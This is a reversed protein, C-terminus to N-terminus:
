RLSVEIIEREEATIGYLDYVLDDIQADTDHLAAELQSLHLAESPCKRRFEDMLQKIRKINLGAGAVALVPVQLAELVGRLIKGRVWIKKRRKEELFARLSFFLFLRFDEDAINLRAIDRWKDDVRGAIRLSQTDPNEDVRIGTVEDKENADILSQCQIHIGRYESHNYYAKWLSVYEREYGKLTETFARGAKGKARNLDLMLDVLKVLGQQRNRSARKIPLRGMTVGTIFISTNYTSYYFNMLKSNLLALLYKLDFRDDTPNLIYVSELPYLNEEDYTLVLRRKLTQNRIHQVLLKPELFKDEYRARPSSSPFKIMEEVDYLLTKTSSVAYRGVDGGSVCRRCLERKVRPLKAFSDASLVFREKSGTKVGQKATVLKGLPETDQELKSVLVLANKDLRINFQAGPLKTFLVQTIERVKGVLGFAPGVGVPPVIDDLVLVTCRQRTAADGEKELLLIMVSIVAETFVTEILNVVNRVACHDLILERLEEFQELSLLSNPIIYGMRGKERSLHVAREVFLAYSDVLRKGARFVDRFARKESSSFPVGYPPNGVIVTFGRGIDPQRADFVEPFEVEWNFPRQDEVDDGFYKKLSRSLAENVPKAIAEIEALRKNREEDGRLQTLEKRREILQVIAEQHPALDEPGRVGSVLSNGVKLNQRLILPLKRQESTPGNKLRDFARMILNVGAIEVAERDLDVGYLHEQLIKEIYNPETAQLTPTEDDKGFMGKQLQAKGWRDWIAANEEEIRKNEGEYFDALVDFAYILFSGSGMAPDLVRRDSIDALTKRTAGQEPEGEAKGDVTGYLYKGLTNDVIYRVIYTPTYYIGKGKRLERRAELEIKDGVLKLKHGLYSEYTNGLIDSTFKRFSINTLDGLLAEMTKNSILVEECTHPSAFIATDHERYFARYFSNVDQQLDYEVAYPGQAQYSTLIRELQDHQLLAGVDDAYRIIILRDLTRQVAQGLLDLKEEAAPQFLPEDRRRDEDYMDQALRKRWELLFDYFGEDVEAKALQGKYWDLAGEAVQDRQLLKLDDFRDVYQQPSDFALIIREEDADFLLLRQFNTLIAWKVKVDARAYRLAQKEEPTRDGAREIRQARSPVWEGDFLSQQVALLPQREVEAPRIKGWKKAELFIVPRNDIQLTVDPYGGERIFKQRNWELPSYTDWGLARFLRAVFDELVDAESLREERFKQYEEILEKIQEIKADSM